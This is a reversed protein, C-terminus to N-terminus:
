HVFFAQQAINLELYSMRGQVCVAYGYVGIDNLISPKMSMDKLIHKLHKVGIHSLCTNRALLFWQAKVPLTFPSLHSLM